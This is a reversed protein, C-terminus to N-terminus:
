AAEKERIALHILPAAGYIMMTAAAVIGSDNFVLATLGAVMVGLFGHSLYPYSRRISTFVGVPRYFLVATAALTVLFVRSWITYRILKLNMSVKRSIIPLVAGMGESRVMAATRGLHSQVEADRSMDIVAFAVLLAVGGVALSFIQRQSFRAGRMALLTVSFGALAAVTGGVNSGHRPSVLLYIIGVMLAVLLPYAVGRHRPLLQYLGSAGILTAGLLVGMFENGMGYYRAGSMPDYGLTSNQMLPAGALLDGVLALATALGLLVFAWLDRGLFKVAAAVVLLTIMVAVVAYEIYGYQTVGGMALLSLPVAMLGLLVPTFYRLVRAKTFMSALAAAVVIIQLIVYPKVVLPRVHYTFVMRRNLELLWSFTDAVGPPPAIGRVPLGVMEGPVGLGLFNLITPAIDMNSIIGTRRTSGSTLLGSTITEGVVLVPAMLNKRDIAQQPPVISAIILLSGSSATRQALRGLFADTERLIRDQERTVVGQLASDRVNELRSTDGLDIVVLGAGKAVVRDYVALLRHHDTRWELLSGPERRLLNGSVDGFDVLGNSDMAILSAQRHTETPLDANGLAATTMGAEHLASGLAGPHAHSGVASNAHLLSAIGLFVVGEPPAPRGTRRFYTTGASEEFYVEDSNFALNGDKGAVAVKGAGLTASGNESNRPGATNTNMLGLAGKRILGALLPMREPSLHELTLRDMVVLTVHRGTMSGAGAYDPNLVLALVLVAIWSLQRYRPM